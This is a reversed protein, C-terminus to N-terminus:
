LCLAKDQLLFVSPLFENRAQKVCNEAAFVSKYVSFVGTDRKASPSSTKKRQRICKHSSKKMFAVMRIVRVLRFSRMCVDVVDLLVSVSKLTKFGSHILPM